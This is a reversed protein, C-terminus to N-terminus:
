YGALFSIPSCVGDRQWGTQWSRSVESTTLLGLLALFLLPFLLMFAAAPWHDLLEQALVCGLVEEAAPSSPKPGHCSCSALRCFGAMCGRLTLHFASCTLLLPMATPGLMHSLEVSVSPRRRCGLECCHCGRTDIICPPWQASLGAPCPGFGVPYNIDQCQCECLRPCLEFSLALSCVSSVSALQWM